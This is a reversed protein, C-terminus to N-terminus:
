VIDVTFPVPLGRLKADFYMEAMCDWWDRGTSNLPSENFSGVQESNDCIIALCPGLYRTKVPPLFDPATAAWARKNVFEKKGELIGTTISPGPNGFSPDLPQVAMLTTFVSARYGPSGKLGTIKVTPIENYWLVPGLETHSGPLRSAMPILLTGQTMSSPGFAYEIHRDSYKLKKKMGFQVRDIEVIALHCEHMITGLDLIVNQLTEVLPLGSLSMDLYPYLLDPDKHGGYAMLDVAQRVVDPRDFRTWHRLSRCRKRTMGREILLPLYHLGCGVPDEKLTENFFNNFSDAVDKWTNPPEPMTVVQRVSRGYAGAWPNLWSVSLVNRGVEDQDSAFLTYPAHDKALLQDNEPPESVRALKPTQLLFRRWSSCLREEEVQRAHWSRHKLRGASVLASTDFHPSSPTPAGAMLPRNRQNSWDPIWSPSDPQAPLPGFHILHLLMEHERTNELLWVAHKKYLSIHTTDSDFSLQKLRPIFGYLAVIRDVKEQCDSKDCLWLLNFIDRDRPDESLAMTTEVGYVNDRGRRFDHLRRCAETFVSYALRHPGCLVIGYQALTAEQLTWRRFFWPRKFFHNMTETVSDSEGFIVDLAKDVDVPEPSFAVLRLFSFVRATDDGDDDPGLWIHVKDAQSYIEGMLPIQQAKEIDDEQNLCIADIWLCRPKYAKRLRSLMSKVNPTIKLRSSPTPGGNGYILIDECFDPEGWTYSVASYRQPHHTKAIEEFRSIQVISGQLATSPDVAPDLVLIRLGDPGPLPQYQYNQLIEM